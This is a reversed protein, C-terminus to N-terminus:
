WSPVQWSEIIHSRTTKIRESRSDALSRDSASTPSKMVKDTVHKSTIDAPLPLGHEAMLAKAVDSECTIEDILKKIEIQYDM